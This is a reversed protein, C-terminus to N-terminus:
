NQPDNKPPIPIPAKPSRMQPSNFDICGLASYGGPKRVITQYEPLRADAINWEKIQEATLLGHHAKKAADDPSSFALNLQVFEIPLESLPIPQWANGQYKFVVYPPNPRGSKNYSVCGMPNVVLYASGKAIGLMMPLFSASGIDESYKDEWTVRQDTGPMTFSLSQEKIPPSQGIEHRGGLTISREVIIKSGDNQLAEEKWNTSGFGFLGADARMSMGMMLLLGLKAISRLWQYNIIM